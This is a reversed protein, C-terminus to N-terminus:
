FAANIRAGVKGVSAVPGCNGVQIRRRLGLIRCLGVLSLFNRM